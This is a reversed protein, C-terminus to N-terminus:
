CPRVCGEQGRKWESLMHDVSQSLCFIYNRVRETERGREEETPTLCVTEQRGHQQALLTVTIVSAASPAKPCLNPTAHLRCYVMQSTDSLSAATSLLALSWLQRM